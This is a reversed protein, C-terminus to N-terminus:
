YEVVSSEQGPVCAIVRVGPAYKRLKEALNKHSEARRAGTYWSMSRDDIVEIKKLGTFRALCDFQYSKTQSWDWYKGDM